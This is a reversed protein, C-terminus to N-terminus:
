RVVEILYVAAFVRGSRKSTLSDRLRITPELRIRGRRVGARALKEWDQRAVMCWTPSDTPSSGVFEPAAPADLSALVIWVHTNPRHPIDLRLRATSGSRVSVTQQAVRELRRFKVEKRDESGDSKKEFDIHQMDHELMFSVANDVATDTRIGKEWLGLLAKQDRPGRENAKAADTKQLLERVFDARPGYSLGGGMSRAGRSRGQYNGASVLGVVEGLANVIPSGSAGGSITNPYSLMTADAPTKPTGLFPGTVKSLRFQNSHAAPRDTDTGGGVQGESPFGAYALPEGSALAHLTEKSALPLAPAQRPVDDEAVVLLAVDYQQIVDLFRGEVARMPRLRTLDEGFRKYGPHVKMASLKLTVPPNSTSRALWTVTGSLKKRYDAMGDAVHGNTALIGNKADVSWATGCPIERGSGEHRAICLYVSQTLKAYVEKWDPEDDEPPPPAPPAENIEIVQAQPKDRTAIWVAAGVVALLLVGGILLPGRRDRRRQAGIVNMLTQMGVGGAKAEAGGIRAAPRDLSAGPGRRAGLDPSASPGGGPGGFIDTRAADLMGERGQPAARPKAKPAADPTEAPPADAGAGDATFMDTWGTSGPKAPAAPTSTPTAPAAPKAPAEPADAKPSPQEVDASTGFLAIRPGKRAVPPAEPAPPKPQPPVPAAAVDDANTDGTPEMGAVITAPTEDDAPGIWASFQPGGNGLEVRQGLQLAHDGDIRTGEVFTGNTSGLDRLILGGDPGRLLQAHRGSVLRDQQPDFVIDNDPTRGLSVSGAQHDTRTGALTSAALQIVHIRQGM